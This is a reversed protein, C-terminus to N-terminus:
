SDDRQPNIVMNDKSPYLFQVLAISVRTVNSTHLGNSSGSLSTIEVENDKDIILWPIPIYTLYLNLTKSFNLPNLHLTSLYISFIKFTSRNSWPYLVLYFVERNDWSIAYNWLPIRRTCRLEIPYRHPPIANYSIHDM